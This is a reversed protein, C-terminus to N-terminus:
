PQQQRTQIDSERMEPKVKVIRTGTETALPSWKRDLVDLANWLSEVTGSDKGLNM